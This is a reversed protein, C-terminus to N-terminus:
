VLLSVHVVQYGFVAVEACHAQGRLMEPPPSQGTNPAASREIFGRRGLRSPVRRSAQNKLPIAKEEGKVAIRWRSLELRPVLWGLDSGTQLDTRWSEKRPLLM